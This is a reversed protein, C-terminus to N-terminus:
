ATSLIVPCVKSNTWSGLLFHQTMTVCFVSITLRLHITTLFWQLLLIVNTKQFAGNREHNTITIFFIPSEFSNFKWKIFYKNACNLQSLSKKNHLDTCSSYSLCRESPCSNIARKNFIEGGCVKKRAQWQVQSNKKQYKRGNDKNQSYAIM